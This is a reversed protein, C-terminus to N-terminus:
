GGYGLQELIAEEFDGAAEESPVRPPTPERFGAWAERTTTLPWRRNWAESMWERLPRGKMQLPLPLGLWDLVTPAIDYVDGLRRHGEPLLGQKEIEPGALILVGPPADEHAGSQRAKKDHINAAHMGHDSLLLIRAEPPAADLIEGLWRDAEKYARPIMPGLRDVKGEPVKYRFDQPRWYRWWFHGAVDPLGFYVLTLDPVEQRLQEVAIRLHTRDSRWAAQFLPELGSEFAWSTKVRPFLAGYDAMLPGRPGGDRLAPLIEEQLEPPWTLEPLGEGHIVPKWLVQAQAQGAYSAVVRGHALREAPWSVWWAVALVSRGAADALNWLAPVARCNSTYPLSDEQPQLEGPPIELFGRIGHEALGVGTAISTWIVPSVTPVFTELEGATGAAILREFNPLRGEELLPELVSWELGDMGVVVVPTRQLTEATGPVEGGGSCSALLALLLSGSAQPRFGPM